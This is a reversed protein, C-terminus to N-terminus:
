KFNKQNLKKHCQVYADLEKKCNELGRRGAGEDNAGIKRGHETFCHFFIASVEKCDKSFSPFYGPLRLDGESM